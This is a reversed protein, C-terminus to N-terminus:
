AKEKVLENPLFGFTKGEIDVGWTGFFEGYYVVTGVKDHQRHSPLAVRVAEGIDFATM